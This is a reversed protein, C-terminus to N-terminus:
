LFIYIYIFIYLYDSMYIYLHTYTHIWKRTDVSPISIFHNDGIFVRSMNKHYSKSLNYRPSPDIRYSWAICQQAFILYLACLLAVPSEIKRQIQHAGAGSRQTAAGRSFCSFDERCTAVQAWFFSKHNKLNMFNSKMSVIFLFIMFNMCRLYGLMRLWLHEVKPVTMVM